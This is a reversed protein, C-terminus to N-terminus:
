HLLLLSIFSSFSLFLKKLSSLHIHCRSCTTVWWRSNRLFHGHPTAKTEMYLFEVTEKWSAYDQSILFRRENRLIEGSCLLFSIVCGWTGLPFKCRFEVNRTINQILSLGISCLRRATSYFLTVVVTCLTSRSLFSVLQYFYIYLRKYLMLCKHSFLFVDFNQDACCLLETSM